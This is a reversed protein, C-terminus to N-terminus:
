SQLQTPDFWDKIVRKEFIDLFEDRSIGAQTLIMYQTSGM